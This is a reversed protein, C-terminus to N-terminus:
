ALARLRRLITRLTAAEGDATEVHFGHEDAALPELTAIQSALLSGPMFHGPRHAVRGGLDEVPADLEVFVLGEPDAMARRLRDRYARRLASCATVVRRGSAVDRGMAEAIAALWPWRDADTLPTGSRMKAINDSSHFDDGELFTADLAQALLRGLTSKGSGSVGFLVIARPADAM